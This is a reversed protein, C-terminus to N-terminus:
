TKPEEAMSIFEAYDRIYDAEDFLQDCIVLLRSGPSIYNQTAWVMAPIVLGSSSKTLHHTTETKGDTATITIEGSVAVLLQQCVRHAHDGRMEGMSAEVLFARRVPFPISGEEFVTISGNAERYNVLNLEYAHSVGERYCESPVGRLCM